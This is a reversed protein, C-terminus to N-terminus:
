LQIIWAWTQAHTVPRCCTWHASLTIMGNDFNSVKPPMDYTKTTMRRATVATLRRRSCLNELSGTRHTWQDCNAPHRLRAAVEHAGARCRTWLMPTHHRVDLRAPGGTSRHRLTDCDDSGAIQSVTKCWCHRRELRTSHHAPDGTDDQVQRRDAQKSGVPDLSVVMGTGLCAQSRSGTEHSKASVQVQLWFHPM